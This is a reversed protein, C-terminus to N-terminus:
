APRGGNSQKVPMLDLARGILRQLRKPLGYRASVLVDALFARAFVLLLGVYVIAGTAVCVALRAATPWDALWTLRLLVVAAFMVLSCLTPVAIAGLLRSPRLGLEDRIIRLLAPM